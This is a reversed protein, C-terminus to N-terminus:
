DQRQRLWRDVSAAVSVGEQFAWVILSQGRRMDGAAFIGPVSSMYDEGAGVLNQPSLSLGLQELLPSKEAGVFGMALIAMDAEISFESGALEKLAPRGSSLDWEVRICDLRQLKGDAGVFAKTQVCFDQSVGEEHSSTHKFVRPYQPWPQNAPRTDAPRPMLEIQIVETAGQRNATGVCDSGTDGGGIVVVKKGRADLTPDFASEGSVLRNAQALYDVAFMVGSLERGSVSLDRLSRSGGSLVIADFDGKLQRADRDKGIEVGCEFVVGEQEMLAIRREIVGKELKFDPIGYRLFGGPRSDREYVHVRHGAKNLKEACSLATPGSGVIAVSRGSRVAPPRAKVWGNAFAREIIDLENQRITVPEDNYALVCGGECLAPCLRGTIEPFTSTLSLREWAQRWRGQMALANWEPIYNGLPCNAHCFPTGCNMCRSAQEISEEDARRMEVERWDRLREDVPRYRVPSRKTQIFSFVNAM